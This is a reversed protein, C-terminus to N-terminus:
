WSDSRVRRVDQTFPGAVFSRQPPAGGPAMRRLPVQLVPRGRGTTARAHRHHGEKLGAAWAPAAPAVPVGRVPRRPPWDSPHPALRGSVVAVRSARGGGDWPVGEVDFDDDGFEDDDFEGRGGGRAAWGFHPDDALHEPPPLGRELEWAGDGPVPRGYAWFRFCCAAVAILACVIFIIATSTVDPEFTDQDEDYAGYDDNNSQSRTPYTTPESTTPAKSTPPMTTPEETPQVAETPEGTAATPARTTPAKTTPAETSSSACEPLMGDWSGTTAVDAYVETLDGLGGLAYLNQFGQQAWIEAAGTAGGPGWCYFAVKLMECGALLEYDARDM